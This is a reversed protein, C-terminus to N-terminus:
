WLSGASVVIDQMTMGLAQNRCLMVALTASEEPNIICQQLDTRHVQECYVNGDGSETMRSM